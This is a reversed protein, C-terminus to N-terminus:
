LPQRYQVMWGHMMGDAKCQGTNSHGARGCHHMAYHATSYSTRKSKYNQGGAAAAPAHIIRHVYQINGKNTTLSIDEGTHQANCGDVTSRGPQLSTQATNPQSTFFNPSNKKCM